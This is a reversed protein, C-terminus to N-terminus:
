AHLTKTGQPIVPSRFVRMPQAAGEETAGTQQVVHTLEHALLRRGSGTDPNYAGDGFVIDSGFTYAHANLERASAAAEPGTHVRVDSFDAGFRPEFQRRAAEPLPAGGSATGSAVSASVDGR